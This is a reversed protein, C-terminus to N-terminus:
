LPEIVREDRRRNWEAFGESMATSAWDVVMLDATITLRWIVGPGEELALRFFAESICSVSPGEIGRLDVCLEDCVALAERISDRLAEGSFEGGARYRGGLYPSFEQAVDYTRAIVM